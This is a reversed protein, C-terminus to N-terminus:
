ANFRELQGLQAPHRRAGLELLQRCLAVLRRDGRALDDFSLLARSHQILLVVFRRPQRLSYQHSLRRATITNEPMATKARLRRQCTAGTAAASGSMRAKPLRM